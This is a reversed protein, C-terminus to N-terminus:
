FWLSLAFGGLALGTVLMRWVTGDSAYPATKAPTEHSQM